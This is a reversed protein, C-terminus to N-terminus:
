CLWGGDGAAFGGGMLMSMAPNRVGRRVEINVGPGVGVSIRAM